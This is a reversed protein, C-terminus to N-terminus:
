QSADSFGHVEIALASPSTGFWRSISITTTDELQQAFNTWRNNLDTPLEEDWDLRIAWLEQLLMKAVVLIPALWRLPDFMRAIFSLISRKTARNYTSFSPASFLFNDSQQDWRIGLTHHLTGDDVNFISSQDRDSQTIDALIESYNAVWKRLRFGGAKFAENLQRIQEKTQSITSAGSLVDDVYTEHRLIDAAFARSTESEFALQNLCRLALYPACALGYTVTCLYFEQPQAESSDRWLIKQLPWDDAHVHIQRYMKEIDAAFVYRHRRWRLLTDTIDTQLKPGIHLVDNLSFGLNTKQSGNFVVHLKTTSSTERIIGHHPLFFERGQSLTQPDVLRMHDLDRYERLFEVYSSKLSADSNFRNEM